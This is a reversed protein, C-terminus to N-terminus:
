IEEILKKFMKKKIKIRSKKGDKFEIDVLRYSEYSSNATFMALLGIYGVLYVGIIARSIVDIINKCYEIHIVTYNSINEKSLEFSTQSGEFILNGTEQSTVVQFHKFDGDIVLNNM